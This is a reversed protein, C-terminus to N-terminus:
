KNFERCHTENSMYGSKEARSIIARYDAESIESDDVLPSQWNMSKTAAIATM